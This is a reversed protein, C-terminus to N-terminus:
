FICVLIISMPDVTFIVLIHDIKILAHDMEKPFLDTLTLECSSPSAGLRLLAHIQSLTPPLM